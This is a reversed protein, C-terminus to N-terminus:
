RIYEGEPSTPSGQITISQMQLGGDSAQKQKFGSFQCNVASLGVGLFLCSQSTKDGFKM